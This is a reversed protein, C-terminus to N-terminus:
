SFRLCTYSHSQPSTFIFGRVSNCIKLLFFILYFRGRDRRSITTQHMTGLSAVISVSHNGGNVVWAEEGHNPFFRRGESYEGLHMGPTPHFAVDRPSSFGSAVTEVVYSGGIESICAGGLPPPNHDYTSCSLQQQPPACPRTEIPSPCQPDEFPTVTRWRFQIGALFPDGTPSFPNTGCKLSCESWDSFSSAQCEEMTPADTVPVPAPTPPTTTSTAPTPELNSSSEEILANIYGTLKDDLTKAINSTCDFYSEYGCCPGIFKHRINLNGDLIVYSPHGFPTTFLDDRIEYNVDNVSLPMERPVINSNPYLDRADEQYIDAWQECSGGGKVSQIFTVEVKNGQNGIQNYFRQAVHAFVGSERRGANCGTYYNAVVTIKGEGAFDQLAFSSIQNPNATSSRPHCVTYMKDIDAFPKTQLNDGVCLAEM